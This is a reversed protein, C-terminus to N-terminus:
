KAPSNTSFWTVTVQDPVFRAVPKLKVEFGPVRAVLKTSPPNESSPFSCFPTKKSEPEVSVAFMTWARATNGWAGTTHGAFEALVPLASTVGGVAAPGAALVTVPLWPT